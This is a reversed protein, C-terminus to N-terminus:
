HGKLGNTGKLLKLMEQYDFDKQQNSNAVISITFILFSKSEIIFFDSLFLNFM